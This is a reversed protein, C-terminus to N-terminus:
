FYISNHSSISKNSFPRGNVTFGKQVDEIETQKNSKKQKTILKIDHNTEIENNNSTSTTNLYNLNSDFSNLNNQYTINQLNINTQSIPDGFKNLPQIPTLQQQFNTSSVIPNSSHDYRYYFTPTNQVKFPYTQASIYSSTSTPNTSNAIVNNFDNQNLKNPLSNNGSNYNYYKTFFEDNVNSKSNTSQNSIKGNTTEIASRFSNPQHYISYYGATDYTETIYNNNTPNNLLNSLCPSQSAIFSNNSVTSNNSSNNNSLNNVQSPLLVKNPSSSSSSTSTPSNCSKILPLYSSTNNNNIINSTNGNLIM